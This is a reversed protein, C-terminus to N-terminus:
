SSGYCSIGHMDIEVKENKSMKEKENIESHSLIQEM